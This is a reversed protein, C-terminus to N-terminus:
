PAPNHQRHGVFRPVFEFFQQSIMRALMKPNNKFTKASSPGFQAQSQILQFFIFLNDQDVFDFQDDIRTNKGISFPIFDIIDAVGVSLAKGNGRGGSSAALFPLIQVFYAQLL